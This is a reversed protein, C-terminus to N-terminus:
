LRAGLSRNMAPTLAGVLQGTSLVVNQESLEPLYRALLATMQDLRTNVAGSTEYTASINSSTNPVLTSALGEAAMALKNKNDNIGKVMLDIMDPMYTHFDALPGVDPESFHLRDGIAKAASSAASKIKAIGNVIGNALNSCIDAGWGLAASITGKINNYITTGVISIATGVDSVASKVGNIMNSMTSTVSTAITSLVGSVSSSITNWAGTITSQVTNMVGSITSSIANWVNRVTNGITSLVNSVTTKVANFGNTVATKVADVATIVASKIVGWWHTFTTSLTNLLTTLFVQLDEFKYQVEECFLRAAEKIDDWNKIWVVIAAVVLGIAAVISGAAAGVAGIGSVIGSLATSLGSLAGTIAPVATMISGVASVVSGIGVLLPGIAAVILAIVVIAQQVAPDLEGFKTILETLKQVIPTIIPLLVDGVVTALDQLAANFTKLSNATGDSTRAYDGQADKTKELVYNFRLMTKEAQSMEDYVLGQDEAFQKLNTENMVVGFRKLAEAEGTFIGELARASDETSTNFYSALDASLGALTISMDAADDESLGIGKGLAGFASVADTAAVKSLGFETIATNAWEKVADANKGFAVEIKNLNENYDSAVKASATFGAVLPLTVSTTLSKGISTMKQGVAQLKSGVAAIQQAGVSGFNKMEKNLSKLANETDIIERKLAEQEATTKDSNGATELQKLAEKEQRLKDETATIANALNKQKQTLLETNGPDLKLLKNVDRLNSQTTSIQSNVQKLATQLKTTDGGIEITIGKIRGGAM